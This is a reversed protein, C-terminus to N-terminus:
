SNKLHSQEFQLRLTGTSSACEIPLRSFILPSAPHTSQASTEWVDFVDIDFRDENHFPCLMPTRHCLAEVQFHRQMAALRLM